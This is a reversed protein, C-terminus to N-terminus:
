PGEPQSKIVTVKNGDIIFKVQETMELLKLITSLKENRNIKAVLSVENLATTYEVKIDYWRQLQLMIDSISAGNFRFLGDKWAVVEDTDANDIIMWNGNPLPHVQQGPRLYQFQNVPNSIKISGELLTTRTVADHANINFHTGLVHVV